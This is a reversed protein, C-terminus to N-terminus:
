LEMLQSEKKIEDWGASVLKNLVLFLFFSLLVFCM